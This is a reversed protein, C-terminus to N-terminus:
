EYDLEDLFQQKFNISLPLLNSDDPVVVESSRGNSDMGIGRHRGPRGYDPTRNYPKRQNARWEDNQRRIRQRKSKQEEKSNSVQKFNIFCTSKAEALLGPYQDAEIYPPYADDRMEFVPDLEGWCLSKSQQLTSDVAADFGNFYIYENDFTTWTTPSGNTFIWFYAGTTSDTIPFGEENNRRDFSWQLFLEPEVYDVDYGDYKIWKISSVDDPIRMINPRTTDSLGQLKILGERSPSSVNSFLEYYTEVIVEAVQLSEVTDGISNVADSDMASLINQTLELLTMKAM